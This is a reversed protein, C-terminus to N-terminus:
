DAVNRQIGHGSIIRSTFAFKTLHFDFLNQDIGVKLLM